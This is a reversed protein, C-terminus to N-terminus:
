LIWYSGQELTIRDCARKCDLERQIQRQCIYKLWHSAVWLCVCVRIKLCWWHKMISTMTRKCKQIGQAWEIIIYFTKPFIMEIRKGYNVRIQFSCTSIIMAFLTRVETADSTATISWKIHFVGLTKVSYNEIIYREFLRFLSILRGINLSEFLKCILELLLVFLNLHFHFFVKRIFM